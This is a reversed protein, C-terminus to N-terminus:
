IDAGPLDQISMIRRPFNTNTLGSLGAKIEIGVDTESISVCQLLVPYEADPNSAVGETLYQRYHLTLKYRSSAVSRIKLRENVPIGKIKISLEGRVGSNSEPLSFEFPVPIFTGQATILEKFDNVIFIPTSFSDHDIEFTDWYTIDQPAYEYAEKVADNLLNPM